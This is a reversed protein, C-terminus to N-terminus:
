DIPPLTNKIESANQCRRKGLLDLLSHLANRNAPDHGLKEALTKALPELHYSTWPEDGYAPLLHNLLRLIQEPYKKAIDNDNLTYYINSRDLTPPPSALFLSVAEDLEQELHIGIGIMDIKEANDFKKPKGNERNIWYDKIWKKWALSRGEPKMNGFMWRLHHSFVKRQEPTSNNLFENLWNNEQPTINAYLCIGSTYELFRDQDEGLFDLRKFIKQFFPRIFPLFEDSWRGWSLYGNWAKKAEQEDSDIDFLSIVNRITWNESRIFLSYVQSAIIVRGLQGQFSKENLILELNNKIREPFLHKTGDTRYRSLLHIWFEALKGGHHNISTTLWDKIEKEDHGTNKDAKWLTEALQMTLDFCEEPIPFEKKGIGTFLIEALSETRKQLSPHNLTFSLLNKWSQEDLNTKKWGSLIGNWLDTEWKEKTALLQAFRFSFAINKETASEVATILGSRNNFFKNKSIWTLLIELHDELKITILDEASYLSESNDTWVADSTYSNFEPHENQEYNPHVMRIKELETKVLNCNPDSSQLWTLIRFISYKEWDKNKNEEEKKTNETIQALLLLKNDNNLHPYIEKLLSFVEHHTHSKFLINQEILWTCKNDYTHFISKCMVFVSFRKFLNKPSTVWSLTVFTLEKNEVAVWELVDSFCDLLTPFDNALRHNQPHNEIASRNYSISDFEYLESKFPKILDYAIEIHEKLSFFLRTGFTILNPKFIKDWSQKLWYSQRSIELDGDIYKEPNNKNEEDVSDLSYTRKRLKLFPKTLYNFLLLVADQDEPFNCDELLYELTDQHINNAKHLLLNIFIGFAKRDILQDSKVRLGSSINAWLKPHLISKKSEILSLFYFPHQKIFSTSLWWALEETILSLTASPNFLDKLLGQDNAWFMWEPTKAHKTFFQITDKNQICSLLYDIEGQDIPPRQSVLKQIQYEHELTGMSIYRILEELGEVLAIHKNPEDKLPYEIWTIGLSEWRDNNENSSIAFRKGSETPPMGRSIYNMVIDDHSYGIFLVTYKLLMEKVFRSAWGDLLYAKGFDGDTLVFRTEPKLVSGHLYVIGKFDNGLPLAPAYYEELTSGYEKAVSSFHQDLNTTVIRVNEKTLGALELILRHLKTPKSNPSGLIEKSLRKVEINSREMDGLAKDFNELNQDQFKTGQAISTVLGKFSPLSSPAETSVGAGAFIVLSGNQHADLLEKPFQIEKLKM